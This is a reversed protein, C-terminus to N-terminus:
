EKDWVIIYDGESVNRHNPVTSDWVYYSEIDDGYGENGAFTRNEGAPIVLWSEM